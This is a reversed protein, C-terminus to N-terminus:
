AKPSKCRFRDCKKRRYHQPRHCKIMEPNVLHAGTEM